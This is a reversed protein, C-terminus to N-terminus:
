SNQSIKVPFSMIKSMIFYVGNVKALAVQSPLIPHEHPWTVFDKGKAKEESARKWEALDWKAESFCDIWLSSSHPMLSFSTSLHSLFPTTKNVERITRSFM